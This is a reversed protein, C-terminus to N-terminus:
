SLSLKACWEGLREGEWDRLRWKGSGWVAVAAQYGPGPSLSHIQWGPEMEPRESRTQGPSQTLGFGTGLAKLYAERRTWLHFFGAEAEEEPLSRWAQFESPSFTYRALAELDPLARVREVDVGVPREYAWAYFIWRGAHALNFQLPSAPALFPKGQPGYFFTLDHPDRGLVQGLLWRLGGRGLTFRQRDEEFAFRSARAQEEPSLFSALLRQRAQPIQEIDLGWVRVQGEAPIM